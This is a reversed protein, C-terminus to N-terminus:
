EVAGLRWTIRAEAVVQGARNRLEASAVSEAEDRLAPPPDARGFATITGRAKRHYEIEIRVPIGRVEPPLALTMALGGALEALNALAVAHISSLHNRIGRRERLSLVARGPELERVRARISGSYPVLLGLLRSFLWRGGPIPALLSWASAIRSAPTAM